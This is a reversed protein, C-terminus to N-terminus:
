GKSATPSHQSHPPLSVRILEVRHHHYQNQKGPQRGSLWAYPGNSLSSSASLSALSPAHHPLGDDGSVPPRRIMAARPDDSPAFGPAQHPVPVMRQVRHAVM